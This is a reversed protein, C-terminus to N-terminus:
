GGSNPTSVSIIAADFAASVAANSASRFFPDLSLRADSLIALASPAVAQAPYRPRRRAPLRGERREAVPPPASRSCSGSSASM